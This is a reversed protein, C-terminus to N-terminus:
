YRLCFLFSGAHLPPEKRQNATVEVFGFDPVTEVILFNLM